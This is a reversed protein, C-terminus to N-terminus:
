EFRAQECVLKYRGMFCNLESRRKFGLIEALATM